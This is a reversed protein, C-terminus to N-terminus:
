FMIVVSFLNGKKSEMALSDRQQLDPLSGLSKSFHCQLVM